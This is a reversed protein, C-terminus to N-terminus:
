CVIYFRRLFGYGICPLIRGIYKIIQHLHIRRPRLFVHLIEQTLMAQNAFVVLNDKLQYHPHELSIWIALSVSPNNPDLAHIALTIVISANAMLKILSHGKTVCASIVM